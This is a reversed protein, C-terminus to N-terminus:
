MLWLWCSDKPSRWGPCDVLWLCQSVQTMVLLLGEWSSCWGLRDVLWLCQSVQTVVLQAVVTRLAVGVRVILWGCVNVWRPWLWCSDKEPSCKFGSSWGVVFMSEGSYCGVVTRRLAVGVWVILWGCVNVWGLWFWCCDKEPTYWGPHDVLYLCLHKLLSTM